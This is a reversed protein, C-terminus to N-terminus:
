AEQKEQLNENKKREFFILGYDYLKKLKQEFDDVKNYFQDVQNWIILILEDVEPRLQQVESQTKNYNDQAARYKNMIQQFKEVHIKVIAMKPNFIPTEGKQTRKAEGEAINKAWLILDEDKNIDPVKMEDPPLKYLSKIKEPMEERLVSMNIVQIFHSVYLKAKRKAEKYLEGIKAQEKLKADTAKVATEFKPTILELHHFLTYDYALKTPSVQRGKKLAAQLSRIRAADTNPLRRYPM